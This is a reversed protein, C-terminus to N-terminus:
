TSHPCSMSLDDTTGVTGLWFPVSHSDLFISSSIIDVSLLSYGLINIYIHKSLVLSYSLSCHSCRRHRYVQPYPDVPDMPVCSRRIHGLVFTKTDPSSSSVVPPSDSKGRSFSFHVYMRVCPCIYSCVDREVFWPSVKCLPIFDSPSLSIIGHGRSTTM